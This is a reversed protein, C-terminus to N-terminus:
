SFGRDLDGNRDFCHKRGASNGLSNRENRVEAHCGVSRYLSQAQLLSDSKIQFDSYPDRNSM